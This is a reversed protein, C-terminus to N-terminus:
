FKNLNELNGLYPSDAFAEAGEDGCQNGSYVLDKVKNLVEKRSLEM